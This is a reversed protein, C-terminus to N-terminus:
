GACSPAAAGVAQSIGHRAAGPEVDAQQGQHRVRGLGV